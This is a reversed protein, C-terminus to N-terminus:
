LSLREEKEIKAETKRDMESSVKDRLANLVVPLYGKLQPALLWPPLFMGGDIFISYTVRTKKISELPELQWTGTVEKLSGSDRSWEICYPKKEVLAVTYDFKIPSGTNVVQRVLKIPGRQGVVECLKLNKFVEPAHPYDVLIDWISEPKADILVTGVVYNRDGRKEIKVAPKEIQAVYSLKVEKTRKQKESAQANNGFLLSLALLVLTLIRRLM